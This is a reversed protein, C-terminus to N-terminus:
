TSDRMLNPDCYNVCRQDKHIMENGTCVDTTKKFVQLLDVKQDCIDLRLQNARLRLFKKDDLNPHRVLFEMWFMANFNPDTIRDSIFDRLKDIKRKYIDQNLIQRSKILLNDITLEFKSIVVGVGAKEMLHANRIQEAFFPVVLAPVGACITEVVSKLGGHSIFLKTHSDHLLSE